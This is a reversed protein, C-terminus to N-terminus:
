APSCDVLMANVYVSAKLRDEYTSGAGLKALRDFAVALIEIEFNVHSILDPLEADGPRGAPAGSM